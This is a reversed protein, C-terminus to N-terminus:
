LGIYTPGEGVYTFQTGARIATEQDSASDGVFLTKEAPVALADVATLLPEPNPKRTGVTDRGVVIDVYDDLKHTQLGIYCAKECNLSCVGIPLDLSQLDEALPLKISERAGQREHAAITAEVEAHLGNEKARDLLEWVSDDSVPVDANYYIEEVDVLVADWDVDLRILTGDLDYVVAAINDPYDVPM